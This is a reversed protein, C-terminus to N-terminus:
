ARTNLESSQIDAALRDLSPDGLLKHRDRTYDGYGTESQQLFRIMETIRMNQRLAEIGAIRIQQQTM